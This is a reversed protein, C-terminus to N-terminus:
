ERLCMAYVICHKEKHKLISAREALDHCYGSVLVCHDPNRPISLLLWCILEAFSFCMKIITLHDQAERVGFALEHPSM